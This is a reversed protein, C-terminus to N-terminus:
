DAPSRTPSSPRRAAPRSTTTPRPKAAASSKSTTGARRSSSRAARPRPVELHFGQLSLGADRQAIDLLRAPDRRWLDPELPYFYIPIGLSVAFDKGRPHLAVGLPVRDLRMHLIPRAHEVDWVIVQKDRGTSLLRKGDRSAQILFVQSEHGRLRHVVRSKAVDWVTIVSSDKAGLLWAGGLAFALRKMARKSAPLSRWLKGDPLTYVGVSRDDRAVALHKGDASCDMATIAAGAAWPAGVPRGDPVHWLRVAGDQGGTAVLAQAPVFAVGKVPGRHGRLVVLTQRTSASWIRATGDASATALYKGDLSVDYNRIRGTHGRFTGVQRRATPSFERLIRGARAYLVAGSPAYRLYLNLPPRTVLVSVRGHPTVTWIQARRDWSATALSRGDPSWAVSWAHNSHALTRGFVAQARLHYVVVTGDVGVSALLKGDPSFDACAVDGQHHVLREIQRRSGVDWLRVSEDMGSSALTRGDPSFTVSWVPGRHGALEAVRHRKAVDYLTVKGSLTSTALLRGDPSYAVGLLREREQTFAAVKRRQAVDWLQSIGDQGATALTRGDPSFAVGSVSGRHGKLTAVLRQTAVDWLRTAGDGYGAALTRGDRSAALGLAPGAHADLRGVERGDAAHWLRVTGDKSATALLQGDIWVIAWVSNTHGDLWTKRRLIGRERALFLTSQAAVIGTWDIDADRLRAGTGAAAQTAYPGLPNGPLHLLAAAAFVRAGSYDRAALLRDAKEQYANALNRQADRSRKQALTMARREQQRATETRRQAVEAHRRAVEARRRAAAQGVRAQEASRWARFVLVGGVILVLAAAGLVGSLTRNRAVFRRLLELSTYAYAGVRAGSQFAEVERALEQASRYRVAKDRQLARGAIAALERPVDPELEQAPQVPEERVQRLVEMVKRGKFPPHGTLIEYLVVGLSWVDSQEDIDDLRGAAQEPSMYAPTGLAAGDLTRSAELEVSPQPLGGAHGSKAYGGSVPESSSAVRLARRGLDKRGKVKALGWDLVVTEGFEGVMVNDTKIDRHIVGRSHAYAIAQCCDVYHSLLALRENLGSCQRLATSLTRGRVLKMSYYLTGDARHGLEYVPVINPHELQGTVRAEHLFRAVTPSSSRGASGSVGSGSGSRLGSLSGHDVLLEKIAIERGLHQDLGVLVRGIGGRGVEAAARGGPFVYRDPAEPTSLRRDLAEPGLAPAVEERNFQVAHSLGSALTADLKSPAALTNEMVDAADWTGGKDAPDDTAAM